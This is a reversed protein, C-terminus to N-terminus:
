SPCVVLLIEYLSSLLEEEETWCVLSFPLLFFHLLFLHLLLEKLNVNKYDWLSWYLLDDNAAPAPAAVDGLLLQPIEKQGRTGGPSAFFRLGYFIRFVVSWLQSGLVGQLTLLTPGSHVTWLVHLHMFPSSVRAPIM